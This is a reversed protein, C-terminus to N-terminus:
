SNDEDSEEEENAEDTESEDNVDQERDPANEPDDQLRPLPAPQDDREEDRNPSQTTM